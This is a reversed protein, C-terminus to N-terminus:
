RVTSPAVSALYRERAGDKAAVSGYLAGALGSLVVLALASALAFRPTVLRQLFSELWNGSTAQSTRVAEIRRWVDQQFRPPLCPTPRSASLLTSLEADENEFNETKM